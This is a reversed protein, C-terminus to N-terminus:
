RCDSNRTESRQHDDARPASSILLRCVIERLIRISFPKILFCDVALGDLLDAFEPSPYATMWIIKIDPRRHRITQTLELGSVNSMFYDTILLDFGERNLLELAQAGSNARWVELDPSLRALSRQLIHTVSEEDDVILVRKKPSLTLPSLVSFLPQPSVEM